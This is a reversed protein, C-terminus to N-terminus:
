EGEEPDFGMALREWEDLDYSTDKSQKQKSPKSKDEEIWSKITIFPKSCMRKNEQQWSVIKKIYVEVSLSDSLRVLEAREDDTLSVVSFNRPETLRRNFETLNRETLNPSAKSANQGKKSANQGKKCVSGQNQTCNDLRYAEDIKYSRKKVATWNDQIFSATLIGYREFLSGDFVGVSILREVIERVLSYGVRLDAAFLEGARDDWKICYGESSGCIKEMLKWFIAYGKLGFENEIIRLGDYQSDAMLEKYHGETPHLFSKMSKSM